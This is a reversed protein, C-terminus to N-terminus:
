QDTLYIIAHECIAFSTLFISVVNNQHM